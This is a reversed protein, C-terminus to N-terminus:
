DVRYLVRGLQVKRSILENETGPELSVCLFHIPISSTALSAWVIKSWVPLNMFNRWSPVGIDLWRKELHAQDVEARTPSLLLQLCLNSSSLLLTSLINIVLHIGTDLRKSIDCDGQYLTVVKDNSMKDRTWSVISISLNLSFTTFATAFCLWIVFKRRSRTSRWTSLEPNISPFWPSLFKISGFAVDEPTFENRSDVSEEQPVVSAAQSNATTDVEPTRGDQPDLNREPPLISM